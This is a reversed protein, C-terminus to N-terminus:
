KLSAIYTVVDAVAKDNPLSAAMGKMQAGTVDRPDTGRIGARFKTLQTMMYWDAQGALAPAKLALQGKAAPGHCAACVKTYTAKGAVADGKLEAVPPTGKLTRVYAVVNAVAAADTLQAAMPRMQAGGTDKAHSGRAGSKFKELQVVLYWSEQQWLAPAGLAKNGQAQAGHCTVCVKNFILKGKAADGAGAQATAIASYGALSVSTLLLALGCARLVRISLLARAAPVVLAASRREIVPM